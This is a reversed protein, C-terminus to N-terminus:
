LCCRALELTLVDSLVRLDSVSIILKARAIDGRRLELWDWWDWWSRAPLPSAQETNDQLAQGTILPLVMDFCHLLANVCSKSVM